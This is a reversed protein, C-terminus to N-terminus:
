EKDTKIIYSGITKLVEGNKWIRCIVENEEIINGWDDFQINGKDNKVIFGGSTVSVYLNAQDTAEHMSNFRDIYDEQGGFLEM